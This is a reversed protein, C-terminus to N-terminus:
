SIRDLLRIRHLVRAPEGTPDQFAERTHLVNHSILGWGAELRGRFIYPSPTSLLRKLAAVAEGAENSWRISITRSTFRMHLRGDAHVSFVPGPREPRAIKGDAMRAPITMADEMMLVRIYDPNEKRLWLYALEHDLLENEGGQQAPRQCYLSLTRVQRDPADYYGDTHWGIASARYPIYNAFPEYGSGGPTLASLGNSQAGLNHDVDHVGLQEMLAPLPNKQGMADPKRICYLAMNAKACRQRIAEKEGPSLSFPDAVEVVLAELSDPYDRMKEEQWVEFSDDNELNFM